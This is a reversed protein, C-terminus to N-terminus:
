QTSLSEKIFFNGDEQHAEAVSVVVAVPVLEMERENVVASPSLTVTVKECVATECANPPVPM